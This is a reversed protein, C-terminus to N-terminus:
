FLQGFFYSFNAIAEVFCHFIAFVFSDIITKEFLAFSLLFVYNIINSTPWQPTISIKQRPATMTWRYRCFLLFFPTHFKRIDFQSNTSYALLNFDLFKTSSPLSCNYPINFITYTSRFNLHITGVNITLICYIIILITLVWNSM